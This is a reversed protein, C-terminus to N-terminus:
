PLKELYPEFLDACITVNAAADGWVTTGGFRVTYLMEARANRKGAARDDPFPYIGITQVIEGERSRLYAPVRTHGEPNENRTRVRDGLKFTM